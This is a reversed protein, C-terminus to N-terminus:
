GNIYMDHTIQLCNKSHHISSGEFLTRYGMVSKKGHDMDVTLGKSPVREGNVYHSFESIDYHRFKYPNTDMSVNFDANKIM